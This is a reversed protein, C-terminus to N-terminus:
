QTIETKIIQWQKSLIQDFTPMAPFGYEDQAVLIQQGEHIPSDVMAPFFKVTEPIEIASMARFSLLVDEFKM